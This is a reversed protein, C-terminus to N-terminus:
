AVRGARERRTSVALMGSRDSFWTKLSCAGPAKSENGQCMTVPCCESSPPETWEPHSFQLESLHRSKDLTLPFPLRLPLTGAGM